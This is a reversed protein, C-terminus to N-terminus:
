PTHSTTEPTYACMILHRPVEPSGHTVAGGAGLGAAASAAARPDALGLGPGAPSSLPELAKHVLEARATSLLPGSSAQPM